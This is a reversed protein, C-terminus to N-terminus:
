VVDECSDADGPFKEETWGLASLDRGNHSSIRIAVNVAITSMQTMSIM